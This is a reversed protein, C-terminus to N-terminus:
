LWGLAAFFLTINKLIGILLSNIDEFLHIVDDNLEILILYYLFFTLHSRSTSFHMEHCENKLYLSFNEDNM